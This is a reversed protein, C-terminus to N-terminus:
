IEQEITEVEIPTFFLSRNPRLEPGFFREFCELAKELEHFMENELVNEINGFDLVGLIRQAFMMFMVYREFNQDSSEWSGRKTRRGSSRRLSKIEEPTTQVIDEIESKWGMEDILNYTFENLIGGVSILNTSLLRQEDGM